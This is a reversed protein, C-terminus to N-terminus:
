QSLAPCRDRSRDAIDAFRDAMQRFAERQQVRELLRTSAVVPLQLEEGCQGRGVDRGATVGCGFDPRDQDPRAFQALPDPLRLLLEPDHQAHPLPVDHAAVQPHTHVQSGVPHREGFTQVVGAHQHFRQEHRADRHEVTGLERTGTGAVLVRQTGVVVALARLEPGSIGPVVGAHGVTAVERQGQPVEAVRVLGELKSALHALQRSRNAVREAESMGHVKRRKEVM